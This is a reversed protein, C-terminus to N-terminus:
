ARNPIVNQLGLDEPSKQIPSYRLLEHFFSPIPRTGSDVQSQDLQSARQFENYLAQKNEVNDRIDEFLTRLLVDLVSYGVRRWSAVAIQSSHDYNSPRCLFSRCCEVALMM